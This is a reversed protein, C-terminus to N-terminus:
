EIGVSEEVRVGHRALLGLATRSLIRRKDDDSIGAHAVRALVTAPDTITLDSGFMVRGAGIEKVVLELVGMRVFQSGSIDFYVNPRRGLMAVLSRVKADSDPFHPYVFTVAPFTAAMKDMDDATCHVHMVMDLEAGARLVAQFSPSGYGGPAHAPVIEGVWGWGYQRQCRRIEAVSQEPWAANIVVGGTFGPRQTAVFAAVEDNGAPLDAPGHALHARTSMFVAGGIGLKNLCRMVGDAGDTAPAWELLTGDAAPLHVHCDFAFLKESPANLKLEGIAGTIAGVAVAALAMNYVMTMRGHDNPEWYRPVCIKNLSQPFCRTRRGFAPM